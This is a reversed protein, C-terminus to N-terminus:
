KIKIIKGFLNDKSLSIEKKAGNKYYTVVCDEFVARIYVNASKGKPLVVYYTGGALLTEENERRTGNREDGFIASSNKLIEKQDPIPKSEGNYSFFETSFNAMGSVVEFELVRPPVYAQGNQSVCSIIVLSFLIFLITFFKKM